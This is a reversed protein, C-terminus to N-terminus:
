KVLSRNQENFLRGLMSSDRFMREMIQHVRTGVDIPSEVVVEDHTHMAVRGGAAGVAAQFRALDSAGISRRSSALTQMGRLTQDVSFGVRRAAEVGRRVRPDDLPVDPYLARNRANVWSPERPIQGAYPPSNVWRAYDRMMRASEVITPSPLSAMVSALSEPRDDGANTPFSSMERALAIADAADTRAYRATRNWVPIAPNIPHTEVDIAVLKGLPATMNTADDVLVVETLVGIAEPRRGSIVLDHAVRAVPRFARLWRAFDRRNATEEHTTRGRRYRKCAELSCPRANYSVWGTALARDAVARLEGRSLLREGIRIM